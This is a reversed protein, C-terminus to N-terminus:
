APKRAAVAWAYTLRDLPWRANLAELWRRAPSPLRVTHALPFAGAERALVVRDFGAAALAARLAREDTYHYPVRPHRELVDLRLADKAGDVARYLAHDPHRRNLFPSLLLAGGPRLVRAIEALAVPLRELHCATGMSAVVDFREDEFPMPADVRGLVLECIALVGARELRPRLRRLAEPSVDIAACRLGRRAAAHTYPGSSGCGLELVAPRAGIGAARLAAALREDAVRWREELWRETTLHAAQHTGTARREDDRYSDDWRRALEPDASGRQM